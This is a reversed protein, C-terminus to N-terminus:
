LAVARTARGSPTWRGRQFASMSAAHFPVAPATWGTISFLYTMGASLPQAPTEVLFGDPVVGYELHDVEVCAEGPVRIRWVEEGEGAVSAATLCPLTREVTGQAVATLVPAELTGAVRVFGLQQCSGLALAGVLSALIAATRRM